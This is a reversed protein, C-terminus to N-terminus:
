SFARSGNCTRGGSEFFLSFFGRVQSHEYGSREIGFDVVEDEENLLVEHRPLFASTDTASSLDSVRRFKATTSITGHQHVPKKITSSYELRLPPPVSRVLTPQPPPTSPPTLPTTTKISNSPPAKSTTEDSSPRVDLSSLVASSSSPERRDVGDVEM